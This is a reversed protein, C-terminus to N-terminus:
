CQGNCDGWNRASTTLRGPDAVPLNVYSAHAAGRQISYVGGALAPLQAATPHLHTVATALTLRLRHGKALRAFVPYVEIEQREVQGPELLSRKARSHPHAPLVLKGRHRWSREEDIKRHSGLLAGTSLPYSSGDPGIDELTAVLLSDRSTASLEVGVSIPGALTTDQELPETTYALAGAQMTTDDQACRNVPFGASASVIGGFGTSWQDPHRNCASAVDSWAITDAADGTPPEDSLVGDNLSAPATNSRGGDLWLTKVRTQPLPYVSEDVWRDGRLEYAHFPTRTTGLRTREGRLWHDFWELHIEQIWEGTGVPNHFWPGEVVQYRPTTRQGRLMPGFPAPRRRARKPHLRAWYNQLAAYNLVVGRQYVDFWGTLMLAPIANRVIPKLLASPAREQWFPSDFARLGGREIETYLDVDLNGFGQARDIAQGPDSGVMTSRLGAWGAAFVANPIGGGFALDRYLDFGAASPVIAKLPSDRGVTAATHMQTLGVYSYGAAGVKGNSRPLRAAWDVLEAGDQADRKSFLGFEGDSNGTGRVDVIANIYGREVLYPFYGDGGYPRFGQTTTVSRKGYPTQALIVPFPGEAPEGTEPDAPYYVDATLTIGDSTEIKLDDFRQIGYEAPRSYGTTPEAQATYAAALLLLLAGIAARM